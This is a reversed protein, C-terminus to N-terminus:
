GLWRRVGRKERPQEYIVADIEGAVSVMGGELSLCKLKLERGHVTVLGRSTLLQAMEETFHLVEAAGTMTLKKREELTLKHPLGEEREM